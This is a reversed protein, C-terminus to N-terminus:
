ILEVEVLSLEFFLDFIKNIYVKQHQKLKMKVAYEDIEEKDANMYYEIRIQELTTLGEHAVSFLEAIVECKNAPILDLIKEPQYEASVGEPIIKELFWFNRIQTYVLTFLDFVDTLDHEHDIFIQAIEPERLTEFEEM